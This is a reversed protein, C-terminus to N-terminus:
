PGSLERLLWVKALRWDRMVTNPSVQLLTATEDVTMGAFYRLEVVQTKRPDVAALACL